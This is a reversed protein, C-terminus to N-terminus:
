PEPEERTHARLTGTPPGITASARSSDRTSQTTRHCLPQVRRDQFGTPGEPDRPNSDRECRELFGTKERHKHPHRPKRNRETPAGDRWSDGGNAGANSGTSNAGRHAIGRRRDHRHAAPPVTEVVPMREVTSAAEDPLLHGYTDLTLTIASHRLLTQIAEPSAGGVAGALTSLMPLALFADECGISRAADVECTWTPEPLTEVPFARCPLPEDPTVTPEPEADGALTEITTRTSEVDGDECALTDALNGGDPLHPWRDVLHVIRVSRAGARTALRAVVTAYQEGPEDHDPTTVVDRGALSDPRGRRCVEVRGAKHDCGPRM